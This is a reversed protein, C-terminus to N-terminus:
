LRRWVTKGAENNYDGLHREILSAIYTQNITQEALIRLELTVIPSFTFQFKVYTLEDVKSELTDIEIKLLQKRM